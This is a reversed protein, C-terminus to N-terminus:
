DWPTHKVDFVEDWVYYSLAFRSIIAYAFDMPFEIIETPTTIHIYWLVCAEWTLVFGNIFTNDYLFNELKIKKQDSITLFTFLKM